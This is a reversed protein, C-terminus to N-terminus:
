IHTFKKITDIITKIYIKFLISDFLEPYILISDSSTSIDPLKVIPPLKTNIPVGVISWTDANSTLRPVVLLIILVLM